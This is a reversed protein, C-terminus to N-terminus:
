GDFDTILVPEGESKGHGVHDAAVVLAGAEVLRDAVHGYRGGHEGYGHVLVALWTADLNPWTRVALEGAHGPVNSEIM